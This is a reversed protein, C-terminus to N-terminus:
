WASEDLPPFYSTRSVRSTLYDVELKPEVAPLSTVNALPPKVFDTYVGSHWFYLVTTYDESQIHIKLFTNKIMHFDNQEKLNYKYTFLLYM